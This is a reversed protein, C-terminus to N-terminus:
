LEQPYNDPRNHFMAHITAIFAEKIQAIDSLSLPSEDLQKDAIKEAIIKEVCATIKSDNDNGNNGNLVHTAAEVSDALLVIATEKTHPRPGSYRYEAEGVPKEAKNEQMAKSYFYRILSTGHHTIIFQILDDKLGGQRALKIGAKVHSLLVDKSEESSIDDHPNAGNRQNEAFFQPQSLKGIDHYYGGVGALLPNAGIARAASEALSAVNKSHHYTGSTETRLRSLLPHEPNLLETLGIPSTQQTLYECASISGMAILAAIVGGVVALFLDFSFLAVSSITAFALFGIANVAAILGGTKLIDTNRRLKRIGVVSAIGSGIVAIAGGLGLTLGWVGTAFLIMILATEEDIFVATLLPIIAIPLFFPTIMDGGQSLFTILVGLGILFRFQQRTFRQSTERLYFVALGTIITLGLGQTALVSWGIFIPWGDYRVDFATLAVTLAAFAATFAVSTRRAPKHMFLSKATSSSAPRLRFISRRNFRRM